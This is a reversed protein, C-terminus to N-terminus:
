ESYAVPSHCFSTDTRRAILAAELVMADATKQEGNLSKLVSLNSLALLDLPEHLLQDAERLILAARSEPSLAILAKAAVEPKLTTDILDRTTAPKQVVYLCLVALALLGNFIMVVRSIPSSVGDSWYLRQAVLRHVSV